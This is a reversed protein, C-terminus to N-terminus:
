KVYPLNNEILYNEAVYVYGGQSMLFNKSVVFVTSDFTNGSTYTICIGDEATYEWIFDTKREAGYADKYYIYGKANSTFVYYSVGTEM